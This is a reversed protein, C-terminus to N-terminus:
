AADSDRETSFRPFAVGDDAERVPAADRSRAVRSATRALGRLAFAGDSAVSASCGPQDVLTVRSGALDCAVDPVLRGVVEAAAVLGLVFCPLMLRPSYGFYFAVVGLSAFVFLEAINIRQQDTDFVGEAHVRVLLVGLPALPELHRDAAHRLCGKGAHLALEQLQNEYSQFLVQKEAVIPGLGNGGM